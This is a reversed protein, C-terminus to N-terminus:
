IGVSEPPLNKKGPRPHRRYIRTKLGGKKKQGSIGAALVSLKGGSPLFTKTPNL